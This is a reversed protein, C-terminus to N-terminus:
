ECSPKAAPMKASGISSRNTWHNSILRARYRRMCDRSMLTAFLNDRSRPRGYRIGVLLTMFQSTLRYREKKFVPMFPILGGIM